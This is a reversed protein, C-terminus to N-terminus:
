LDTLSATSQKCLVGKTKLVSPSCSLPCKHSGPTEWGQSPAGATPGQRIPCGTPEMSPNPTPHSFAGPFPGAGPLERHFMPAYLGPPQSRLLERSLGQGSCLDQCLPM